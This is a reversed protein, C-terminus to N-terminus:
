LAHCFRQIEWGMEASFKGDVELDVSGSGPLQVFLEPREVIGEVIQLWPRSKAERSVEETWRDIIFKTLETLM